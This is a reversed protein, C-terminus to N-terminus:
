TAHKGLICLKLFHMKDSKPLSPAWDDFEVLFGGGVDTQNYSWAKFTRLQPQPINWSLPSSTCLLTGFLQAVWHIEAIHLNAVAFPISMQSLVERGVEGLQWEITSTVNWFSAAHSVQVKPLVAESLFIIGLHPFFILQM